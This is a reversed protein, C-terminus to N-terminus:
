LLVRFVEVSALMADGGTTDLLLEDSSSQPFIMDSIVAEGDGGYVELSCEDVLDRLRVVGAADPWFTAAHVGGAAPDYSIDSSIYDSRNNRALKLNLNLNFNVRHMLEVTPYQAM